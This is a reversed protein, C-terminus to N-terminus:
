DLVCNMAKLKETARNLYYQILARSCHEIEAIAAMTMSRMYRHEMCRREIPLLKALQRQVDEFLLM